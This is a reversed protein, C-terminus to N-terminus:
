AQCTFHYTGPPVTYVPYGLADTGAAEVGKSAAPAKGDIVVSGAAGTPLHIEGRSNPPITVALTFTGAKCTWRSEIRGQPAEHWANVWELGAVPHPQIVVNRFGPHAPDPRIGALGRYFWASIDSYMHHNRSCKGDWNEWLTTAGQAIWHGWSPYDTQTAIAYALDARGLDTLTHLLYKTGLIGCDLHRKQAEVESVLAALVAPQDKAEVLGQYLACAMSTQTNGTVMGTDRNIFQKQFTTRIQEALRGYRRADSPKGLLAAISALLSADVHYYATDTVRTPCKHDGAGGTPPCWDGLGFNVTHATAMSTLYDVYRKMYPYNEALVARDGQYLYLYWPILILASDWAPGSGWNFGWGGTPIIGPLQGSERQVDHFDRLWKRYATAPDFNLLVQEASLHADGTWGNKERHPCDTPIGHYNGLTSWRAAQQIANLLPNSCEFGGRPQLDTHVTVGTITDDDPTGPFGTVQVYQFGHYTFRPEFREEGSGKLIFRDTQCDGSKIFWNINSPDIAGNADLKEVYRLTIETGAPGRAKLRAWGAIDQGLDFIWEGPKAEHRSVPKLTGTVRIPTHQQSRMGGGPSPVLRAATWGDTAYGPADWGPKEQRADYTEGNRLGDFVIPGTSALWATDSAIRQTRGDVRDIELQLRLKPQARWPAQKFDWVEETFCNYWGNGLMVGIVNIGSRLAATVDWTQYYATRDYRSFAPMLVEDGIRQGNVFLEYYGLGSVYIRASRAAAPLRFERRLLPAPSPKKMDYVAPAIWRARWDAERLLGMEFTAPESWPGPQGSEDHVRVTWCARQRSRLPQGGYRIQVSESSSVLGSEWLTTPGSELEAASSAVRIEYATQRRGQPGPELRWSFLPIATEVGLPNVLGNCTLAIPKATM